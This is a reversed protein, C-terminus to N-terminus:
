EGLCKVMIKNAMKRTGKDLDPLGVRINEKYDIGLEKSSSNLKEIFPNLNITIEEEKEKKSFDMVEEIPKIPVYIVECEKTETDIVGFCPKHHRQDTKRRMLSGSNFLVNKDYNYLIFNHNDGSIVINYYKLLSPAHLYEQQKAWLKSDGVIMTHILLISIEQKNKPKIIESEWPCTYLYINNDLKIRKSKNYYKILGSANFLRLPINKSKLKHFYLDHQGPIVYIKIYKRYKFLVKAIITAHTFDIKPTNFFDGAILLIKINHKKCYSLIFIFKNLWTGFYDKDIRREPSTQEGHLDGIGAIKM